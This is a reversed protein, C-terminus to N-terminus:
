KAGFPFLVPTKECYAQYAPDEGWKESARKELLPVGSVRNLLLYVFLPSILAVWQWGSLVPVAIVAMGLWLVIEGVYNPHRSWSWLGGTIFKGANEPDKRFASKQTDAIVEIGFGLGWLALGVFFFPDPDVRTESSIIMLACAATLTVWLGQLTWTVLFRLPNTKIQDFRRDHGDKSIRMFLFSGLRIAWVAVLGAAVAARLDLPQALVAAVGIVSLYTIAGTLDYYRETHAVASPIFVLWNVGFAVLACALIVSHGFVREDGQGALFAVGLGIASVVLVVFAARISKM